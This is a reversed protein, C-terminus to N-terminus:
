DPSASRNKLANVWDLNERIMDPIPLNYPCKEMCEGCGTCNVAKEWINRFMPQELIQAGMRRVMSRVGLAFQIHIGEPCPQCYDCRRCFKRDFESTINEIDRKEDESLAYSGTFVDWNRDIYAKEEVGALVLIDPCAFVWKLAADPAQIVGGSLPKMALVGVQKELAKPILREGAAPELFSFCVMITEFLGDEVVKELLDLSHSTLGIHGIIGQEKAKLLGSL